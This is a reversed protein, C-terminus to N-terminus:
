STQRFSVYAKNTKLKTCVLIVLLKINRIENCTNVIYSCMPIVKYIHNIQAEKQLNTTHFCNAEHTEDDYKNYYSILNGFM